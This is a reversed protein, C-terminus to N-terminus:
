SAVRSRMRRALSRCVGREEPEPEGPSNEFRVPKAQIYVCMQAKQKFAQLVEQAQPRRVPSAGEGEDSYFGLPGQATLFLCGLGLGLSIGLSTGSVGGM